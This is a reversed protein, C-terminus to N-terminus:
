TTVKQLKEVLVAASQPDARRAQAAVREADRSDLQALPAATPKHPTIIVPELTREFRRDQDRLRRRAHEPSQNKPQDAPLALEERTFPADRFSQRRRGTRRRIEGERYYDVVDRARVAFQRYRELMRQEDERLLQQGMALRSRNPWRHQDARNRLAEFDRENPVIFDGIAGAFRQLHGDTDLEQLDTPLKGIKPEDCFLAVRYWYPERTEVSQRVFICWRKLIPHIVLRINEEGVDRVVDGWTSRFAAEIAVPVPHQPIHAERVYVDVVEGHRERWTEASMKLRKRAASDTLCIRDSTPELYEGFDEDPKQAARERHVADRWKLFAPDTPAPAKALDKSPVYPRPILRKDRSAETRPKRLDIVQPESSM